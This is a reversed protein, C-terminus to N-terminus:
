CSQSECIPTVSNGGIKGGIGFHDRYPLYCKRIFGEENFVVDHSIIVVNHRPDFLRYTGSTDGFGVLICHTSKEELKNRGPGKHLVYADCGLIRLHGLKATKGTLLEFPIQGGIARSPLRNKIHVISLLIESWLRLPLKGLALTSRTPEMLTRILREAKGNLQPTHPPSTEALIGNAAMWEAMDNSKLIEGANDSRFIRIKFGPYQNEMTTKYMKIHKPAEAKSRMLKAVVYQTAEDEIVIFYKEGRLGAIKFPGAIDM